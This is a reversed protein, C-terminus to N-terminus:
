GHYECGCDPCKKRAKIYDVTMHSGCGPCIVKGDTDTKWEPDTNVKKSVAPKDDKAAAPVVPATDVIRTVEKKVAPEAKDAAIDPIDVKITDIRDTIIEELADLVLSSVGCIIAAIFCAASFVTAQMNAIQQGGVEKISSFYFILSLVAFIGASFKLTNKMIAGM